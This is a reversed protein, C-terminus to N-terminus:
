ANRVIFSSASKFPDIDPHQQMLDPIDTALRVGVGHSHFRCASAKLGQKYPSQIWARHKTEDRGITPFQVSPVFRCRRPLEAVSNRSSSTDSIRLALKYLPLSATLCM